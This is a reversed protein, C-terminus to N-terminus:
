KLKPCSLYADVRAILEAGSLTTVEVGENTANFALIDKLGAQLIINSAAIVPGEHSGDLTELIIQTEPLIFNAALLDVSADVTIVEGEIKIINKEELSKLALLVQEHDPMKFAYLHAILFAVNNKVPKVLYKEFADLSLKKEECDEVYNCLVQKRTWDILSLLVFLDPTELVSNLTSSKLMSLGVHQAIEQQVSKAEDDYMSINVEDKLHEILIRKDKLSYVSKELLTQNNKLVFRANQTAYALIDFVALMQPHIQDYEIVGKDTLTTVEDGKLPADMFTFLGLDSLKEYNKKIFTLENLTLNM